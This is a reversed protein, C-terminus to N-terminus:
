EPHYNGWSTNKRLQIGKNGMQKRAVNENKIADGTGGGLNHPIAHGIFEHMTIDAPGYYMAMGTTEGIIFGNGAERGSIFVLQQISRESGFTVGGGYTNTVSVCPKSPDQSVTGDSNIIYGDYVEDAIMILTETRDSGIQQKLRDRYHSSLNDDGPRRDNVAYLKGNDDFYFQGQSREHILELIKGRDEKIPAKIGRGGYPPDGGEMAENARQGTAQGVQGASLANIMGGFFSLVGSIAQAARYAATNFVKSTVNGELVYGTTVTKTFAGAAKAAEAGVAGVFGMVAGVLDNGSPDTYKLPNNWVYSYRNFAQTNTPDSVLNDPALM